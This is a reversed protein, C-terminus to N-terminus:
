EFKGTILAYKYPFDQLVSKTEFDRFMCFYTENMLLNWFVNKFETRYDFKDLFKKVEEYDNKYKATKYDEKKLQKM